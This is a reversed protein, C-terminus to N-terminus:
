QSPGAQLNSHGADPNQWWNATVSVGPIVEEGMLPTVLEIGNEAAMEAVMRISEDWPHLALDFTAWHIPFLKKTDVDNCLAIVEDPFLHTLPWGKNWGDIEVFAMDFPGYKEGLEKLHSGYGTDGCHFLNKDMGKIVWSAWLTKDRDRHSRGSYHIATCATINVSGFTADQDWGLETIKDGAVGWGKLRAGVGLPVVFQIDNGALFKITARELHDYHDHTIIVIDIPPLEERKMPAVDYRRTIFPLPGANKFVPDILIRKGDLELMLSSHGFWRVSFRAPIESFDGQSLMQKPLPDKPAYPSTKFFRAFGPKGGTIQEPFYPLPEPSIFADSEQSYYALSSYKTMREEQSELKGFQEFGYYALGGLVVLLVSVIGLTIKLISKM